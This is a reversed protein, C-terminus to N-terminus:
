YGMMINEKSLKQSFFLVGPKGLDLSVRVKKSNAIEKWAYWTQWSCRIHDIIIVGNASIHKSISYFNETIGKYSHDGHIYAMDVSTIENLLLPLANSFSNTYQRINTLRAKRYVERAMAAAQQCTRITHVNTPPYGMAFCATTIGNSNGLEIIHQPRFYRSMRYFLRCDADCVPSTTVSHDNILNKSLKKLDRLAEIDGKAYLCKQAFDYLFPSHIGYPKRFLHQLVLNIINM